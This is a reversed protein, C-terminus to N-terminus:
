KQLIIGATKAAEEAAKVSEAHLKYKHLTAAAAALEKANNAAEDMRNGAADQVQKILKPCQFALAPTATLGAAVLALATIVHKM